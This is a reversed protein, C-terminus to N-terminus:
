SYLSYRRGLPLAPQPAAAAGLGFRSSGPDIRAARQMFDVDSRVAKAAHTLCSAGSRSRLAALIIQPHARLAPAAEGLVEGDISVASLMFDFDMRLSLSAQSAISSPSPTRRNLSSLIEELRRLEIALEDGGRPLPAAPPTAEAAARLATLLLKRNAKLAPSAHTLARGSTILVAQEMHELDDAFDRVGDLPDAMSAREAPSAEEYLRLALLVLPRDARLSPAADLLAGPNVHVLQAVFARDSKLSDAAWKFAGRNIRMVQAVFDGDSKLAHAAWKFAGGECSGGVRRVLDLVFSRDQRLSASAFQFAWAKSRGMLSVCTVFARDALLTPDAARVFLKFHEDSASECLRRLAALMFTRDAYLAGGSFFGGRLQAVDRAERRLISLRDSEPMAWLLALKDGWGQEMYHLHAWPPENICPVITPPQLIQRQFITAHMLSRCARSAAAFSALECAPLQVIAAKLLENPLELLQLRLVAPLASAETTSQQRLAAPASLQELAQKDGGGGGGGDTHLRKRKKKASSVRPFSGDLSATTRELSATTRQQLRANRAIISHQAARLQEHHSRLAAGRPSESNGTETAAVTEAPQQQEPSAATSQQQEPPAATSQQQLAATRLRRDRRAARNTAALLTREATSVVEHLKLRYTAVEYLETKSVAGKYNTIARAMRLLALRETSPVPDAGANAAEDLKDVLEMSPNQGM